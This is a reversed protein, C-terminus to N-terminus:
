TYLRGPEPPLECEKCKGYPAEKEGIVTAWYQDGFSFHWWETPLNVFGVAELADIMIKRNAIATEPLGECYTDNKAMDFLANIPSGMDIEDGSADCLTVDIAGGTMHPACGSPDAILKTVESWLAKGTLHPNQASISASIEDFLQQQRAVPRITTYVKFFLGKPLSQAAAVLREAASKRMLHAGQEWYFVPINAATFLNDIEICPEGSDNMPVLSSASEDIYTVRRKSLPLLAFEGLSNVVELAM